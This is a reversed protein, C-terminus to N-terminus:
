SVCSLKLNSLLFHFYCVAGIGATEQVEKLCLFTHLRVAEHLPTDGDNDTM